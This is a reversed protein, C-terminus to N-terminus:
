KGNQAMGGKSPMEADIQKSPLIFKISVGKNDNNEAWIKGGHVEVIEKCISLGLGSGSVQLPTKLRYFKNFINHLDEDPIQKGKDSVTVEIFDSVLRASIKIESDDESYKISNDLLNVFVQELLVFDGEVMPLDVDINTIIRRKGLTEVVHKISVGILDQIDCWDKNLKVMGSELKAMELLNNIFRSMRAAGHRITLLLDKRAEPSFVDDGELLGTVAGTISALPTRLDHSLSNFLATRLRESEIYTLGELAQESLKARNIAVAALTSFAELLRLQNPQFKGDDKGTGIALVGQVGQETTLPLYLARAASLTETDMGARQGHDFVWSAVARENEETFITREHSSARLELREGNSPMFIAVQGNIVEAVKAAIKSLISDLGAVAAIDRSLAYLGSVQTERERSYNVQNKLRTSLTGTLFAMFILIGFSILYRLDAVTFSLRPPVFFFDYTIVGVAAATIAPGTGWRDACFLVPLIYIMAVNVLGLYNRFPSVLATLVIMMILAAVYPYKATLHYRQYAIGTTQTVKKEGPIVHVSIGKSLRIVKDVVSGSFWQLFSRKLPKGIIIQSVNRQRALEVIEEALDDGVLSIVEAGLEEALRINQALNNKANDDIPFGKSTEVYVAIWEAQLGEAMRKATRVLQASFPSPSVCVMLREGAPWPGTIGHNRMYSQMQKEVRRATYLLTLERLANIIGPIFFNHLATNINDEAVVKGDRVRQLLEEPPLDVVVIQDAEELVRDPVTEKVRVGTIQYIIDNLSEVHQINLTTYVNIGHALLESVDQYRKVHRSGPVNSHALEDIIVLKPKVSLLTDLDLEEFAHGRYTISKSSVKPLYEALRSTEARHHQDVVAIVVKVGELHKEKAAELMSFTKGVGPAAGLFITLKGRNTCNDMQIDNGCKKDM